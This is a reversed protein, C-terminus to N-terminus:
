SHFTLPITPTNTLPLITAVQNPSSNSVEQLLHENIVEKLATYLKKGQKHLVLTYANSSAFFSFLSYGKCMLCVDCVHTHYACVLRYLEEFSLGSNNKKQIERIANRLLRLIDDVYKPDM